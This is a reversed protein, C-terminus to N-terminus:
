SELAAPRGTVGLSRFIQTAAESEDRGSLRGLQELAQAEEFPLGEARALALARELSVAAGTEDGGLRHAAGVLVNVTPEVHPGGVGVDGSRLLREGERRVGELDGAALLAEVSRCAAEVALGTAGMQDFAECVAELEGRADAIEGQRVALRALNSRIVLVAMEYGAARASRLADTFLEAALAYEGQDSRLEGLNNRAMLAGTVDGSSRRLEHSREYHAACTSWDGRYYAAIGLNNFLNGVLVPDDVRDALGIGLDGYRGGAPDNLYVGALQLLYCARLTTAPPNDVEVVAREALRWCARYRGQRFRVGAEALLLDSREASTLQEDRLGRRYWRIASAYKGERECVVGELLPLSRRLPDDTDLLRAATRYAWRATAYEGSFEASKGMELAVRGREAASVFSGGRSVELARQYGLVAEAHALKGSALTAAAISYRWAKENQRAISFHVALLDADTQVAGDPRELQEGIVRHLRRRVRYPLGEYATERVLSTDFRIMGDPTRQLIEGLERLVPVLDLDGLEAGAVARLDDIHFADGFVAAVWLLRRADPSLADLRSSILSELQAPVADATSAPANRSLEIAFLPNGGSREVIADLVADSVPVPSAEIVLARTASSDIPGLEVRRSTPGEHPDSTTQRDTTAVSWRREAVADRLRTVLELTGDDAWQLNEILVVGTDDSAADILDLVADHMRARVFDPHIDDSEAPAADFGAVARLLPLSGVLATSRHHVFTELAAAADDPDARPGVGIMSRILRRFAGYPTSTEYPSCAARWVVVGPTVSEIAADIVQTKGMGAPGVVQLAAGGARLDDAVASIESARALSMLSPARAQPQDDIPGLVRVARIPASKGKVRFPAIPRTPVPVRASDVVDEVAIVEGREARAVMRAATNIPDGVVTYTRRREAGVLGAFVRGSQAGASLEFPTDMDVIDLATRLLAAGPDPNSLPAGAVLVFRIGDVSIDTDLASVGQSAATAVVHDVFRGLEAAVAEPGSQERVRSIGALEIFGGCVYRHEGGVTEFARLQARVEDPVFARLSTRPPDPRVGDRLRLLVSPDAGSPGRLEAAALEALEPAVLTEGPDARDELDILEGTGAGALLLERRTSGALYVDVPGGAVAVTMSLRANRAKATARLGYQMLQGATTSRTAHDAGRFLVLLADGRFKLVEGGCQYTADILTAFSANILERLDEAGAKGRAALRESLATFGSIDASLLSGDIQTWHSGARTSLEASLRPVFPWLQQDTETM